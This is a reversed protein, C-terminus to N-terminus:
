DHSPSEEAPSPASPEWIAKIAMFDEMTVDPLDAFTGRLTRLSPKDVPPAATPSLKGCPKGRRTIIVEEGDDLKRLIESLKAKFERINYTTVDSEM